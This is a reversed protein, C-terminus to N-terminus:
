AKGFAKAFAEMVDQHLNFSDEVKKGSIKEVAFKEIFNMRSTDFGGGLVGQACAAKRMEAPYAAEMQKQAQEGDAMCCLFLGLKKRLLEEANKAAFAKVQKRPMGAYVSAGLIVSDYKKLDPTGNKLNCLEAGGPIRKQLEKACKETVGHKTAYAILTSMSM